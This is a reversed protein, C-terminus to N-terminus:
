NQEQNKYNQENEDKQIREMTYSAQDQLASFPNRIAWNTIHEVMKLIQFDVIRRTSPGRPILLDDGFQNDIVENQGATAFPGVNFL